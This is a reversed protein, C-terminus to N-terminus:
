AAGFGVALGTQGFRCLCLQAARRRHQIPDLAVLGAALLAGRPPLEWRLALRWVAWVTLMALLIHLVGTALPGFSHTAACPALLWTYLPARAAVAM